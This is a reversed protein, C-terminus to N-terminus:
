VVAIMPLLLHRCALLLKQDFNGVDHLPELVSKVLLPKHNCIIITALTLLKMVIISLASFCRMLIEFQWRVLAPRASLALGVLPALASPHLM